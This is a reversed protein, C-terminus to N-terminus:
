ASLSHPVFPLLILGPHKQQENKKFKLSSCCLQPSFEIFPNTKLRTATLQAPLTTMNRRYRLFFRQWTDRGAAGGSFDLRLCCFGNRGIEAAFINSKGTVVSRKPFILHLEITKM